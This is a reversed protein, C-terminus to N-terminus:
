GMVLFTHTKIGLADVSIKTANAPRHEAATVSALGMVADLRSAECRQEFPCTEAAGEPAVPEVTEFSQRFLITWHHVRWQWANARRRAGSAADAPSYRVRASAFKIPSHSIGTGGLAEDHDIKRRESPDTPIVALIWM